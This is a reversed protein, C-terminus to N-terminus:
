WWVLQFIIVTALSIGVAILVLFYFDNLIIHGAGALSFFECKEVNEPDFQFLSYRATAAVLASIGRDTKNVNYRGESTGYKLRYWYKM